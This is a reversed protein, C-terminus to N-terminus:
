NFEALAKEQEVTNGLALSHRRWSIIRSRVKLNRAIATEHPPAEPRRASRL